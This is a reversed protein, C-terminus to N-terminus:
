LFHRKAFARGSGSKLYKEFAVAREKDKFLVAVLLAWPRYKSTHRALGANHQDVRTALDGSVGTYHQSPVNVSRLIYVFYRQRM